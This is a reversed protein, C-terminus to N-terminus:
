DTVVTVDKKKEIKLHRFSVKKGIPITNSGPSCDVPWLQTQPLISTASDCWSFLCTGMQKVLGFSDECHVLTYPM